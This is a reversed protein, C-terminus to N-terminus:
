CYTRATRKAERFHKERLMRGVERLYDLARTPHLQEMNAPFWVGLKNAHAQVSLMAPRNNYRTQDWTLPQTRHDVAFHGELDKTMEWHLEEMKRGLRTGEEVRSNDIRRLFWDAFVGALFGVFILVGRMFGPLAWLYNM